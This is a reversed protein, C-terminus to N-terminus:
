SNSLEKLEEYIKKEKRSLNMPIRIKIQVWLDGRGRSQLRPMGRGRIQILEDPQAGQPIDVDVTNGLIDQIPKRTGLVADAVEVQMETVLDDGERRFTGHDNVEIVVYLDGAPAGMAGAGGAGSVRISNGTDIGGPIKVKYTKDALYRGAGGCKSCKERIVRGTGGCSSCTTTITFLGQSHAMRGRGGCARCTEPTTGAKAGNGGCADCSEEKRLHIEKEVGKAADELTISQGTQQDRGKTPGGRQRGGFIDGFGGGFAGGFMDMFSSFIDEPHFDYGQGRLGSAGYQDYIQRKKPDSLVDYAEAVEKFKEEAEPNDPNRDPHYQIALRRYAKKLETADVDRSVSLISYYDKDAMAVTILPM